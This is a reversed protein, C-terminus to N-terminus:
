AHPTKRVFAALGKLSRAHAAGPQGASKNASNSTTAHWPTRCLTRVGETEIRERAALVPAGSLPTRGHTGRVCRTHRLVVRPSNVTCRVAGLVGCESGQVAGQVRCLSGRVRDILGVASMTTTPPPQM